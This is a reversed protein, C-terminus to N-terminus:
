CNTGVIPYRSAPFKSSVHGVEEVQLCQLELLYWLALEVAVWALLCEMSVPYRITASYIENTKYLM